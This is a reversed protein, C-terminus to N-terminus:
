PFFECRDAHFLSTQPQPQSQPLRQPGFPQMSFAESMGFRWYLHQQDRQFNAVHCHDGWIFRQYRCPLLMPIFFVSTAATPM